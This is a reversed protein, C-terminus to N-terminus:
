MYYSLRIQIHHDQRAGYSPDATTLGASSRGEIEVSLSDTLRRSAEVSFSTAQTNRDVILGALFSTDEVDNLTIRAGLFIDDDMQTAPAGAGRDENHYEALLGLDGADNVVGFFTYEFGLSMAGFGDGHGSRYFGEMKLLWEDITVQADISTQDILDYHAVFVEDGGSDSGKVFRPERSTGRFHALGLDWDGIVTAYRVAVDPHWQERGSEYVTQDTDVPTAGRLRGDSGAFTRERFYPMVFLNVDGWDRQLGLNVMPQGLKD